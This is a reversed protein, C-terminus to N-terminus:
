TKRRSSTRSAKRLVATVHNTFLEGLIPIRQLARQGRVAEFDLRAVVLGSAKVLRAFKRVSMRNLGGEVDEFRVAGDHRYRKRVSMITREPFVLHVWPIKTFYHMHAGYPAFWPPGFTVLMQGDPALTKAMDDLSKAPDPFHEMSDKSFVFDFQERPLETVFEVRDRVGRSESWERAHRLGDANIDLGVVRKAGAEALAVSQRGWGCGFDLVRMGRIQALLDPYVRLLGELPPRSFENSEAESVTQPPSCYRLLLSELPSM